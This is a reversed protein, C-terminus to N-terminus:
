IISTELNWYDVMLERGTDYLRLTLRLIADSYEQHDTQLEWWNTKSESSRHFQQCSPYMRDLSLKIPNPHENENSM